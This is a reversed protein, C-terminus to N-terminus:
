ISDNTSCNKFLSESCYSCIKKETKLAWCDKCNLCNNCRFLENIKKDKRTAIVYYLEEHLCDWCYSRGCTCYRSWEFKDSKVVNVFNVIDM